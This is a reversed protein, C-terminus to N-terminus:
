ILKWYDCLRAVATMCIIDGVVDHSSTRWHSGVVGLVGLWLVAPTRGYGPARYQVGMMLYSPM